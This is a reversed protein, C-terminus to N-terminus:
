LIFIDTTFYTIASDILSSLLVMILLVAFRVAYLKLEPREENEGLKHLMYLLYINSFRVSERVSLILIISTFLAHPLIMVLIIPVARVAYIGYMYSIAMGLAAGRYFLLSISILQTIASFGFLMLIVVFLATWSVSRYFVSVLSQGESLKIFGHNLKESLFVSKDDAICYFVTGAAIGAALVCMLLTLVRMRRIDEPAYKNEKLTM